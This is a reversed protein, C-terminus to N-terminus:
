LEYMENSSKLICRLSDLKENEKGKISEPLNNFDLKHLVNKYSECCKHLNKIRNFCEKNINNYIELQNILSERERVLMDSYFGLNKHQTYV